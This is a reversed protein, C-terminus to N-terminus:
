WTMNYWKFNSNDERWKGCTIYIHEGTGCNETGLPSHNCQALNTETGDCDVDDLLYIEVFHKRCRIVTQVPIDILYINVSHLSRNRQPRKERYM